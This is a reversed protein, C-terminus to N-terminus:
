DSFMRWEHAKAFEKEWPEQEEEIYIDAVPICLGDIWYDSIEFRFQQM